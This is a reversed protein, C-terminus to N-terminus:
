RESTRSPGPAGLLHRLADELDPHRFAYGSQELAAPEVRASSLLLAQAMEGLALRAVLRPVPLIAPRRLVGALVATFDGNTLPHPAVVNVPGELDDTVLAHRVAGIADDLAIWSWFQRGSGMPGGAGLRFPPLMRALAGGAPSLVVGFRLLVVRIGAKRAPETAAEWERCVDSLFGSGTPSDERLLTDGGDGYYGTASACVLTRPPRQLAALREALLRTSNVRSERIREKKAATWRGAISEGALHVVADVGDFVAPELNGAAPDWSRAEGAADVPGRVLPVADHGGTTLLPILASGVLGHSGSVLVRMPAQWGTRAVAELDLATVRHRYDFMRQLKRRVARGGLLRGMLGFPLAYEIEDELWCGADGIPDFRHTHIWCTFPGQVQVDRFQRDEIFDRHEAVWRVPVPGLRVELKVRAGDALGGHAGLL